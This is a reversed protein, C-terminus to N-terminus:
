AEGKEDKGIVLKTDGVFMHPPVQLNDPAPVNKYVRGALDFTSGHCPCLFGGQWDDPLSPQPGAQLKTTPSCGLHSCIGVAVLIEPKRSRYENRAYEPTLEEPNRESKPDAVQGDTKKLSAVMEPSRKLIWVPKGRWEVTKLEGLALDAIDVEVPAGAAKARESPQFTSVFAGATALGAVGGAACTAVLLGRRGSDVQKENSM